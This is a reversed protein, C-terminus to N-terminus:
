PIPAAPASRSSGPRRRRLPLGQRLPSRGMSASAEAIPRPCQAASPTLRPADMPEPSPSPDPPLGSPHLQPSQLPPCPSLGPCLQWQSRAAMPASTGKLGLQGQSLPPTASSGCRPRNAPRLPFMVVFHVNPDRVFAPAIWCCLIPSWPCSRSGARSQVPVPATAGTALVPPICRRLSPSRGAPFTALPPGTRHDDM